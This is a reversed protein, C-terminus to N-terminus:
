FRRVKNIISQALTKVPLAAQAVTITHDSKQITNVAHVLADPYDDFAGMPFETLETVAAEAGRAPFRIIGTEILMSISRVRAEKSMGGVTLKKIPLYVHEEAALKQVYNAYIGSFVVDEWGILQFRHMRHFLVLQKVTETESCTKAFPALVYIIGTDKHVAIPAMATRDHKGTAPDVGCFYRLAAQPPLELPEYKHAEIWEPRIIREEDSLPENMYETSFATFGIQSRKEELEERKWYEPWLPNGDPLLCALRACIWRSLKGAELEKCLRSIPDDGHFITNVWIIFANKGLNLVVRKLWRHIKNRQTYSEADADKIIDDLIILDPRYQRYRTGRMSAGSGKSQLCRGSTLEIHSDRWVQGRLDGFDEIIRENEELETRINVLNESAATDSAGILLIYRSKGTLARWLPYAFSWRVTKGHERPEVFMAGALKETPRLLGRYKEAVFPKLRGSTDPTLSQTNAVDYLIRQYDAADSFFYDGLYYRCFFGFDSGAKKVREAKERSGQSAGVLEELLNETM